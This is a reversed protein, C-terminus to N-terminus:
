RLLSPMLKLRVKSVPLEGETMRLVELVELSKTNKLLAASKTWPADV